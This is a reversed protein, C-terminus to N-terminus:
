FRPTRSTPGRGPRSGASRVMFWLVAAGLAWLVTLGLLLVRVVRSVSSAVDVNTVTSALDTGSGDLPIRWSITGGEPIGTTADITGPIAAEFTLGLAAGIDLGAAEIDAAYPAGGLLQRTAEDAFADLGGTVQLRGSLTWTSNTDMGTRMLTAQQLPGGPGNIESLIQSAEGPGNFPRELTLRLGGDDTIDPGSVKWGVAELDATSVDEALGPAKAVVAPDAIVTVVVKGSGNPKVDLRVTADVRCSALLLVAAAVALLRAPHLRTM